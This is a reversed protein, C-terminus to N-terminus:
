ESDVTKKVIDKIVTDLETTTNLLLGLLDDFRKNKAQYIRILDILGIIRAVPGRVKHSQMWAIEAMKKNKDSLINNAEELAENKQKIEEESKKRDTIDHVIGVLNICVGKQFLPSITVIGTKTGTPYPTTEEWKVIAHKEIAEQYKELVMSCSPEPIVEEVRKGEVQSRSLGTKDLFSQNIVAFRFVKEKDVDLLFMVDNAGEFALELKEKYLRAENEALKREIVYVLIKRVREISSEEQPTLIHVSKHYVAFTGLLINRSDIIPYSWCSRLDFDKIINKYKEWYPNNFIDRVEVKQRLFAASGCSGNGIGIETGEVKENFSTPLHPSSWNYLRGDKAKLVSCLMDPHIQKIGNLLFTILKVVSSNPHIYQELAEKELLELMEIRKQESIDKVIGMIKQPNGFLDNEIEGVASVMRPSHGDAPFIQIQISYKQREKILGKGAERVKDIDAILPEIKSVPIESAEPPFGFLECAKESGWIKDSNKELEWYGLEGIEQAKLLRSKDLKMQQEETKRTTIDRFYISLGEPSPYIHEEFWKDYPPYYEERFIYQQTEMAKYFAKYFPHNFGEPFETWIHKGIMKGPDRRFIEGAKKNMYTYYWHNNLAIFADSIRELVALLNEKSYLSFNSGFRQKEM